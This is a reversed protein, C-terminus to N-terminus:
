SAEEELHEASAIGSKIQILGVFETVKRKTLGPLKLSHFGQGPIGFGYMHM